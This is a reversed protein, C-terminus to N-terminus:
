RRKLISPSLIINGLLQHSGPIPRRHRQEQVRRLPEKLAEGRVQEIPVLVDDNLEMLMLRSDTDSDFFKHSFVHEHTREIPVM